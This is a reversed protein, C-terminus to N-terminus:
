QIASALEFIPLYMMIVVGGIGLGILAMVIPEFVRMSRELWRTLEVEHFEAAKELMPGVDGSREGAQIM